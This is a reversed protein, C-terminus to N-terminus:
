SISAANEKANSLDSQAALVEAAEKSPVLSIANIAELMQAKWAAAFDIQEATFKSRKMTAGEEEQFKILSTQLKKLGKIVRDQPSEPKSPYTEELYATIEAKLVSVSLDWPLKTEGDSLEIGRKLTEDREEQTKLRLIQDCRAMGLKTADKKTFTNAMKLAKYCWARGKSTGDPGLVREKVIEAFQADSCKDHLAELKTGVDWTTILKGTDMEKIAGNIEALFKKVDAEPLDDKGPVEPKEAGKKGNAKKEDPKAAEKKTAEKKTASKKAAEKKPAPKKATQKEATQKEADNETVQNEIEPKANVPVEVTETKPENKTMVHGKRQVAIRPYKAEIVRRLREQLEEASRSILRREISPENKRVFSVAHILSVNRHPPDVFYDLLQGMVGKRPIVNWLVDTDINPFEHREPIAPEEIAELCEPHAAESAVRYDRHISRGLDICRRWLFSRIWRRLSDVREKQQDPMEWDAIVQYLVSCVDSEAEETGLDYCQGYRRSAFRYEQRFLHRAEEIAGDPDTGEEKYAVIQKM